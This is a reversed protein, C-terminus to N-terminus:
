GSIGTLTGNINKHPGSQTKLGYTAVNHLNGGEDFGRIVVAGSRDTAVHLRKYKDLHNKAVDSADHILSKASGDEQVHSHAIIHPLVTNPSVHSSILQRLGKDASGNGNDKYKDILGSTLEKSVLGLHKRKSEDAKAAIAKENDLFEKKAQATPQSDHMNIFSPLHLHMAIEDPILKEGKKVKNKLKALLEKSEKIPAKQMKYQAHREDITGHYGLNEMYQHHPAMIEAIRGTRLGAMKELSDTGPNKYNPEKNTGYKASIPHYGILDGRTGDKNKRHVSAILDANSNVDKVKTLNEHDGATGETDRNSTWHVDGIMTNKDLHGEDKLKEKIVGATQKAHGNIEQYAEEGIKKRLKDHVFQPSGAHGKEEAEPGKARFHSPLKLNDATTEPHLHAALLLEHLKGKDDNSVKAQKEAEMLYVEYLSAEALYNTFKLIM